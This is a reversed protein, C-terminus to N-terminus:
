PTTLATLPEGDLRWVDLDGLKRAGIREYFRTAATNTRLVWWDLRGGEATALRAVHALLLRGVGDGRHAPEVYLDELHVGPRGTITSYTPRHLACGVPRGGALALLAWIVPRPGFLAAALDWPQATVRDPREEAAALAVVFRHLVDVDAPEAPRVVIEMTAMM